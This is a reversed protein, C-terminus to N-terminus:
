FGYRLSAAIADKAGPARVHLVLVGGRGSGNQYARKVPTLDFQLDAGVLARCRDGHADHALTLHTQAPLSELFLGSHILSFDHRECGGGHRVQLHLIDGEIRAQVIEAPDMRVTRAGTGVLVLAAGGDPQSPAPRNCAPLLLAIMATGLLLRLPRIAYM